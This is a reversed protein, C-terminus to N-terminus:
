SLVPLRITFVTGSGHNGDVKISGKYADVIERAISLGLGSGGNQRSRGKDVRYFREFIHRRADEPIGIGTDAVTFCFQRTEQDAWIKLRIHDGTKTYRFANDLFITLLQKIEGPNAHLMLEQEPLHASFKKGEGSAKQNYYINMTRVAESLPFHKLNETAPRNGAKAMTLLQNILHNMDAVEDKLDQLTEKSSVSMRDKEEAEFFELSASFVSLPTRMEHSADAVFARQREYNKKVPAVARRALFHAIIVSLIATAVGLLFLVKFWFEIQEHTKLIEKAIVIYGSTKGDHRVPEMAYVILTTKGSPEQASLLGTKEGHKLRGILESRMRNRLSGKYLIDKGQSSLYASLFVSRRLPGGELRQTESFESAQDRALDDVQWRVSQYIMSKFLFFLLFLIAAMTLFFTLSYTLSLKRQLQKFM